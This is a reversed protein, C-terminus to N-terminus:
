DEEDRQSQSVLQDCGHHKQYGDYNRVDRFSEKHCNRHTAFKDTTKNTKIRSM